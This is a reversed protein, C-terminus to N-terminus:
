NTSLSTEPLCQILKFDFYVVVLKFVHSRHEHFGEILPYLKFSRHDSKTQFIGFVLRFL